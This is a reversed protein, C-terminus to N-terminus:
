HSKFVRMSIMQCIDSVSKTLTKYVSFQSYDTNAKIGNKLLPNLLSSARTTNCFGICVGPRPKLHCFKQKCNKPQGSLGPLSFNVSKETFIQNVGRQFM